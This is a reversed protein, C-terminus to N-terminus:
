DMAPASYRQTTDGTGDLPRTDTDVARSRRRFIRRDLGWTMGAAGIALGLFGLALLWDTGQPVAAFGKMLIFNGMLFFGGVAGLPALLGLILSIGVALEGLAVMRAFLGAHALVMGELFPRYFGASQGIQKSVAATLADGSGLWGAGIKEIASQLFYLGFGIRIVALGRGGSGTAM